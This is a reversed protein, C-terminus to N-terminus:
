VVCPNRIFSHLPETGTTKRKRSRKTIIFKPISISDSGLCPKAINTARWGFGCLPFCLRFFIYSFCASCKFFQTIEIAYESIAPDYTVRVSASSEEHVLECIHSTRVEWAHAPATVLLLAIATRSHFASANPLQHRHFFKLGLSEHLATFSPSADMWSM